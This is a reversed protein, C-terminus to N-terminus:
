KKWLRWSPQHFTRLLFFGSHNQLFDLENIRNYTINLLADFLEPCSHM